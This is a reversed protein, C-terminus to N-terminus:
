VSVKELQNDLWTTMDELIQLQEPENMIEHYLGEYLKLQKDKSSVRAFFEKSGEINTLRDETGHLVLIPLQINIANKQTVKMAKLLQAGTRAPLKKHFIMPDTNYKEVVKEDRSIATHDLKITPLKPFIWGLFSSIKILFKSIDDGPKLAAASTIAGSIPLTSTALTYALVGGGMSHGIAFLPLDPSKEKIKTIMEILDNKYLDISPIYARIGDSKGHGLHDYTYVAYDRRNLYEAVHAYRESYEGLGHVILVNAKPKNPLWSQEFLTKGNQSSFTDTHHTISTSNMDTNQKLGLNYQM